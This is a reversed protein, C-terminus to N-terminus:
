RLSSREFAEPSLRSLKRLPGILRDCGIEQGAQIDIHKQQLVIRWPRAIKTGQATGGSINM